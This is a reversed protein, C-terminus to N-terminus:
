EIIGEGIKYGGRAIDAARQREAPGGVVLLQPLVRLLLDLPAELLRGELCAVPPGVDMDGCESQGTVHQLQDRIALWTASAYWGYPFYFYVTYDYFYLYDGHVHM